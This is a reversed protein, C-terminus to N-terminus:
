ARALILADVTNAGNKLLESAAENSTAGTTFVDDILLINKNKIRKQDAVSFAQKLNKKRLKIDFGTQPKTNRMRFLSNTDIEWLPNQKFHNQYLKEFNRIMLFVQNFGRERLRNKHLPIPIVVDIPSKNFHLLFAQFLLLEFAKAVALKSSYKFLPVGDKIIGKYEVAARVKNLKLPTKICTECVRNEQIGNHSHHLKCGCKICYPAVVLNFGDKMCIDCFCSELTQPKVLEPDIYTGCKLCKLPYLLQEFSQISKKIFSFLYSRLYCNIHKFISNTM